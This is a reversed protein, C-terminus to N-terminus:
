CVCFLTATLKLKYAFLVMCYVKQCNRRMKLYSWKMKATNCFTCKSFFHWTVSIDIGSVALWRTGYGAGSCTVVHQWRNVDFACSYFIWWCSIPRYTELCNNIDTFHCYKTQKTVSVILRFSMINTSTRKWFSIELTVATLICVKCNIDGYVAFSRWYVAQKVERELDACMKAGSRVAWLCKLHTLAPALVLPCSAIAPFFM